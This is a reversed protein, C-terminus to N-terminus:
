YGILSWLPNGLSQWFWITWDTSVPEKILNDPIPTHTAENNPMNLTTVPTVPQMSDPLAQVLGQPACIGEKPESDELLKLLHLDPHKRKGM